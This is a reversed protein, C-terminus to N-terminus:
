AEDADADVFGVIDFIERRRGIDTVAEGEILMRDGVREEEAGGDPVFPVVPQTKVAGGFIPTPSLDVRPANVVYRGSLTIGILAIQFGPDEEGIGEDIEAGPIAPRREDAGTDAGRVILQGVEDVHSDALCASAEAAVGGFPM